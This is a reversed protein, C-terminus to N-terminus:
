LCGSLRDLLDHRSVREHQQWCSTNPQWTQGQTSCRSLYLTVRHACAAVSCLFRLDVPVCGALAPAAESLTQQVMLTGCRDIPIVLGDLESGVDYSGTLVIHTVAPDKLASVLSTTSGAQPQQSVHATQEPRTAAPPLWRAQRALAAALQPALEAAAVPDVYQLTPISAARVEIAAAFLRSGSCAPVWPPVALLLLLLWGAPNVPCQM